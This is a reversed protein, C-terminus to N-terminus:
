EEGKMDKMDECWDCDPETCPELQYDPLDKFMFARAQPMFSDDRDYWYCLEHLEDAWRYGPPATARYCGAARDNTIIARPQLRRIQALTPVRSM